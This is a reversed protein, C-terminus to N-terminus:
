IHINLFLENSKKALAPQTKEIYIVQEYHQKAKLVTESKQLDTLQGQLTKILLDSSEQQNMLQFLYDNNKM